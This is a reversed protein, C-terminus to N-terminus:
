PHSNAHVAITALANKEKHFSIMRSFDMDFIVDGNLLIFDTENSLQELKFLAGATGLPETETFYSINCGITKGNGFYDKIQQGLHGVVLIIENLGNRKLCDLQYELIPKDKIPLMPKPIDKAISAARTGKGGAMIVTLM